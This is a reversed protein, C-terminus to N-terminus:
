KSEGERTFQYRMPAGELEQGQAYPYVIYETDGNSLREYTYDLESARKDLMIKLEIKNM